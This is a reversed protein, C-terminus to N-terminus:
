VEPVYQVLDRAFSQVFEVDEMSLVRRVDQSFCGLVYTLGGATAIAALLGTTFPEDRDKATRLADDDRVYLVVDGEGDHALGLHAQRSFVPTVVEGPQGYSSLVEIRKGTGAQAGAGGPAPGDTEQLDLCAIYAYDMEISTAVLETSLDLADRIDNDLANSSVASARQYDGSVGRGFTIPALASTQVPLAPRVVAPTTRTPPLQQVPETSATTEAAPSKGDSAAEESSYRMSSPRATPPPTTASEEVVSLRARRARRVKDNRRWSSQKQALAASRSRRQEEVYSRIEASARDAMRSLDRRDQEDFEKRPKEGLLCFIGAPYEKADEDGIPAPVVIPAAAYFGKDYPAFGNKRFRWDQAFDLVVLPERTRTTSAKLMTHACCTSDREIRDTDEIFKCTSDGLFVQHDHDMLSVTTADVGFRQKAEIALQQLAPHLPGLQRKTRKPPDERTLQRTVSGELSDADRRAASEGDFAQNRVRPGESAAESRTPSQPPTPLDAGASPPLLGLSDVARQRKVENAPRPPKFTGSQTVFDSAWLDSPPPPPDDFDIYGNQYAWNWEAWSKPMESAPSSSNLKHKHAKASEVSPAPSPLTNRDFTEGFTERHTSFPETEVRLGSGSPAADGDQTNDASGKRQRSSSLSLSSESSNTRRILPLRKLAGIASRVKSGSGAQESAHTPM